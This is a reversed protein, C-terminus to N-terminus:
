RASEVRQRYAARAIELEGLIESAQDRLIPLGDLQNLAYQQDHRRFWCSGAVDPPRATLRTLGTLPVGLVCSPGFVASAALKSVCSSRQDQDAGCTSVFAAKCMMVNRLALDGETCPGVYGQGVYRSRSFYSTLFDECSVDDNLNRSAVYRLCLDHIACGADLDDEPPLERIRQLLQGADLQFYDSPHHEGCYRGYRIDSVLRHPETHHPVKIHWSSPLFMSACGALAIALAGALGITSLRQM